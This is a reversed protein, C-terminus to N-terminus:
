NQDVLDDHAEGEGHLQMILRSVKAASASGQKARCGERHTNSAHRFEKNSM